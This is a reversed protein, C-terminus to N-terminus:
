SAFARARADGRDLTLTQGGPPALGGHASAIVLGGQARHSEFLRGLLGGGQSDLSAEPEDLVWLARPAVLLRALALRKRQGASLSGASQDGRAALGVQDLAADVDGRGGYFRRWFSLDQAATQAPKVGPAHGIFHIHAGRAESADLDAGAKAFTIKGASVRCFGAIARLLTTKGAGNPGRVVLAGGPNLHFGVERAVTREGRM